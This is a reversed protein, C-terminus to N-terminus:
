REPKQSTLGLRNNGARQTILRSQRCSLGRERATKDPILAGTVKNHVNVFVSRAQEVTPQNVGDPKDILASAGTETLATLVGVANVFGPDGKYRRIEDGTQGVRSRLEDAWQQVPSVAPEIALVTEPERAM